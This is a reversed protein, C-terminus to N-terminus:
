NNNKYLETIANWVIRNKNNYIAEPKRIWKLAKEYIDYTNENADLICGLCADEAERSHPNPKLDM